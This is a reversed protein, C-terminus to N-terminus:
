LFPHNGKFNLCLEKVEIMRLREFSLFFYIFFSLCTKWHNREGLPEQQASQIHQSSRDIWSLDLSVLDPLYLHGSRVQGYIQRDLISRTSVSSWIQGSWLWLDIQGLYIQIDLNFSPFGNFSFWKLFPNFSLIITELM